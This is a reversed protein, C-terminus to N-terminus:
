NLFFKVKSEVLTPKETQDWLEAEEELTYYFLFAELLTPFYRSHDQLFKVEFSGKDMQYHEADSSMRFLQTGTAGQIFRNM